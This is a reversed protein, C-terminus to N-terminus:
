AVGQLSGNEDTLAHVESWLNEREKRLAEIVEYLDTDLDHNMSEILENIEKELKSLREKKLLISFAQKATKIETNSDTFKYVRTLRDTPFVDGDVFRSLFSQIKDVDYDPYERAFDLISQRADEYIPDAFNEFALQEEYEDLLAPHSSITAILLQERQKDGPNGKMRLRVEIIKRIVNDGHKKGYNQAYKIIPDIPRKRYGDKYGWLYVEIDRIPDLRPSKRLRESGLNVQDFFQSKKIRFYNWYEEQVGNDAIERIRNNLEKKFSARKEPTSLDASGIESKWLFDAL